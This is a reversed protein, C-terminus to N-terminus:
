VPTWTVRQRAAAVPIPPPGTRLVRPATRRPPVMAPAARVPLVLNASAGATPTSTLRARLFVPAQRSTPTRTPARLATPPPPVLAPAAHTMVHVSTTPPRARM